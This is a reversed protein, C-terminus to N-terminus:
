KAVQLAARHFTRVLTLLSLAVIIWGAIMFGAGGQQTMPVCQHRAPSQPDYWVMFEGGVERPVIAWSVVDCLSIQAALEGNSKPSIYAQWERSINGRQSEGDVTWSYTIESDNVSRVEATTSEWDRPLDNTVSTGILVFLIGIPLLIFALLSTIWSRLYAFRVKSPQEESITGPPIFMQRNDARPTAITMSHEHDNHQRTFQRQQFQKQQIQKQQIHKQQIQKQQM